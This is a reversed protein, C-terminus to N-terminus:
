RCLQPVGYRYRHGLPAPVVAARASTTGAFRVFAAPTVACRGACAATPTAELAKNAMKLSRGAM